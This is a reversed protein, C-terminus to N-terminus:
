MASEAWRRKLLALLPKCQAEINEFKGEFSCRKDYGAQRCNRFFGAFDEEGGAAFGPAVRGKDAVHTHILRRGAQAVASLNEKEEAMHFLDALLQIRPRAVADVLRAGHAVSLLLNDERSNLPELAIDIGIEAAIPAVERCFEIFQAEGRAKDFGEPLKRAGASGLVVVEGGLAKCRRLATRCYDLVRALEVRPGTIPHQPPIFSNFAEACLPAGEMARRVKEFEVESASPAVTAVGFEVYDAGASRLTEMLRPLSSLPQDQIGSVFSGLGCCIGFRM